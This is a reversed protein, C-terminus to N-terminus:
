VSWYSNTHISDRNRSTSLTRVVFNFGFFPFTRPFLQKSNCIGRWRYRIPSLLLNSSPFRMWWGFPYKRFSVAKDKQFPYLKTNKKFKLKSKYDINKVGCPIRKFFRGNITPINALLRASLSASFFCIFTLGQQPTKSSDFTQRVKSTSSLTTIIICQQSVNSVNNRYTWVNNYM